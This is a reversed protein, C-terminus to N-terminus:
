GPDSASEAAWDLAADFLSNAAPSLTGFNSDATCIM